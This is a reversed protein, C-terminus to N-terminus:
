LAKFEEVNRYKKAEEILPEVKKGIEPIKVPIGKSNSPKEQVRKVIPNNSQMTFPRRMGQEYSTASQPSTKTEVKGM